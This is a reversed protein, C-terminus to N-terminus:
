KTVFTIVILVSEIVSRYFSQDLRNIRIIRHNLIIQFSNNNRHYDLYGPFFHADPHGPNDSFTSHFDHATICVALGRFVPPGAILSIGVLIILIPIIAGFSWHGLSSFFHGVGSFFEGIGPFHIDWGSQKLIWLIGFIILVYAWFSGSHRKHEIHREM